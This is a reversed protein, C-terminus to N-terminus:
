PEAFNYYILAFRHTERGDAGSFNFVDSMCGYFKKIYEEEVHKQTRAVGNDL